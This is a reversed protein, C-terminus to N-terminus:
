AFRQRLSQILGRAESRESDDLIVFYGIAAFLSIWAFSLGLCSAFGGELLGGGLGILIAFAVLLPVTLKFLLLRLRAIRIGSFISFWKMGGILAGGFISLLNASLLGMLGYRNALFYALGAYLIIEWALMWKVKRIEKFMTLSNVFQYHVLYRFPILSLLVVAGLPMAMEASTWWTVVMRNWLIFMGAGLLAMSLTIKTVLTWWSRFQGDEGESVMKMLVPGASGPIRQLVQTLLNVLKLNVALVATVELSLLHGSFLLLSSGMVMSFVAAVFVDMGLKSVVKLEGWDFLGFDFRGALKRKFTQSVVLSQTAIQGVALGIPYSWLGAGSKIAGVFAVLQLLAAVVAIANLRALQQGALLATAFISLVYGLSNIGGVVLFISQALSRQDSDLHFIDGLFPALVVIIAMMVVAQICFVCFSAIWMRDYAGEGEARAGILLRACASRVGFEALMVAMLMQTIVAYLAFDAKSLAGLAIPIAVLQCASVVVLSLWSSAVTVSLHSKVSM